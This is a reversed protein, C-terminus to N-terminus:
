LSPLIVTFTTGEGPVSDVSIHGNHNEVIKKCLALGIGTGEYKDRANLRQFITFVQEKFGPDFGIGNDTFLLKCYKKNRDSVPFVNLEAATVPQTSIRIYPNRENFKIANNILNAFLQHLQLQNGRVVPLRGSDIVAGKEAILLEFDSRVYELVRNLDTEIFSEEVKSLRSYELVDKILSSMRSASVEIKGLFNRLADDGKIAKKAMDAFTQIKRLPEQLDHSAVYAFQELEANKRKLEENSRIVKESANVIETINHATLLAAYVENKENRLPVSFSEYFEGSVPSQYKEHHVVEGNLARIVAKYSPSGTISPMAEAYRKGLVDERKVGFEIECRNNFAIFRTESDFVAILVLSSNVVTEAFDKQRQIEITREAVKQELQHTHKQIEFNQTQITSLMDNFALTLTKLEGDEASVARVSYDKKESIRKATTALHIIPDTVSKEFKSSLLYTLLFCFVLVGFIILAYLMLREDIDQTSRRIYLFGLEREGQIVPVVLEFYQSTQTFGKSELTSAPVHGPQILIQEFIHGDLKYLAASIINKEARLSSLIELAESTNDFALAATLNQALMTGLVELERATAKRYSIIEYTFLVTFAVLLSLSSIILILRVLKSRISKTQKDM